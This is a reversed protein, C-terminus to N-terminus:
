ARAGEHEAITCRDCLVVGGCERTIVALCADFDVRIACGDCAVPDDTAVEALRRDIRASTEACATCLKADDVVLLEPAERDCGECLAVAVVATTETM